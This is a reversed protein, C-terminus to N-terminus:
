DHGDMMVEWHGGKQAGIHKFQGMKVLKASAIKVASLSKGITTAVEALTM